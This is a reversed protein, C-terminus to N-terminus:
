KLLNMFSLFDHNLLDYIILALISANCILGILGSLTERRFLEIIAMIIGFLALSPAVIMWYMFFLIGFVVANGQGSSTSNDLLSYTLFCIAMFLANPIFAKISWYKLLFNKLM